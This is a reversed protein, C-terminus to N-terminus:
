RAATQQPPVRPHAWDNFIDPDCWERETPTQPRHVAVPRPEYTPAASRQQQSGFSSKGEPASTKVPTGNRQSQYEKLQPNRAITLDIWDKIAVFPKSSRDKIPAAVSGGHPTVAKTLLPSITPRDLDIYALAATLNFQTAAKKSGDSARELVFKGGAGSAHCNACANMLIPQVRTTFAVSTETTVDVPVANDHAKVPAISAPLAPKSAPQKLTRELLTVIQRAGTHDPQLALAIKAQELARDDMHHMNCWRALAVHGGASNPKILTQMFVYADDWDTCIRVASDAGLFIESTGRRIRIQTGVKDIDGEMVSGNKLLLIKGSSRGDVDQAFLCYGLGAVLAPALLCPLIRNM